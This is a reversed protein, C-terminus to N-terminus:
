ARAVIEFMPTEGYLLQEKESWLESIISPVISIREFGSQQLAGRDWAPRRVASLPLAKADFPESIPPGDFTSGYRSLCLAERARCKQMLAEDFLPLQWNADYVAIVGGPRLVRKAERYFGAPDLLTWTVNRSVVADFSSDAFGGLTGDTRVFEPAQVGELGAANQRAHALMGESIDAGVVSHGMEALILSFFGPGCGFDLVRSGPKLLHAGLRKQWLSKAPGTMEGQVVRAYNGADETWYRGISATNM